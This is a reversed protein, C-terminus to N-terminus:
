MALRSSDLGFTIPAVLIFTPIPDFYIPGLYSNPINEDLFSQYSGTWVAVDIDPGSWSGGVSEEYSKLYTVIM